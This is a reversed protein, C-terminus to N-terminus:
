GTPARGEHTLRWLRAVLAQAGSRQEASEWPGVCIDGILRDLAARYGGAFGVVTGAELAEVLRACEALAAAPDQRGSTDSM